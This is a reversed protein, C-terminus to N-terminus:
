SPTDALEVVEASILFLDLPPLGKIPSLSRWM